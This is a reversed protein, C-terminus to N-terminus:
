DGVCRGQEVPWTLTVAAGRTTVTGSPV